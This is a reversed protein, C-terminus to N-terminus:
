SRTHKPRRVNRWDVEWRGDDTVTSRNDFGYKGDHIVGDLSYVAQPAERFFIIDWGEWRVPSGLSQQEEVFKEAAELSNITLM